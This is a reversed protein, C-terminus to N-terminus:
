ETVTNGQEWYCGGEGFEGEVDHADEGESGLEVVEVRGGDKLMAVLLEELL